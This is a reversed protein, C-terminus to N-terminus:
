KGRRAWMWAVAALLLEGVSRNMGGRWEGCQDGVGSHKMDRSILLAPHLSNTSKHQARENTGQNHSQCRRPSRGRGVARRPVADLRRDNGVESAIIASVGPDAGLGGVRKEDGTRHAAVVGVRGGTHYDVQLDVRRLAGGVESEDRRPPNCEVHHDLASRIRVVVVVESRRDPWLCRVRHQVGWRLPVPVVIEAVDGDTVVCRWRQRDRAGLEVVTVGVTFEVVVVAFDFLSQGVPGDLRELASVHHRRRDGVGIARVCKVQCLASVHHALDELGFWCWKLPLLRGWRSVGGAGSQSPVEGRCAM